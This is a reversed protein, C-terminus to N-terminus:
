DTPERIVKRKEILEEIRQQRQNPTLTQIQIPAGNEGSIEIAKRKPYLYTLLDLLVGAQKDPKLQPLLKNLKEIVDFGLEDLVEHLVQTRKNPTGKKRGGTKPAGTTKPM